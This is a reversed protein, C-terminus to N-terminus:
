VQELVEQNLYGRLSAAADSYWGFVSMECSLAATAVATTLHLYALEPGARMGGASKDTGMAPAQQQVTRGSSSGRQVWAGIGAGDTAIPEIFSSLRLGMLRVALAPIQKGHETHAVNVCDAHPVCYGVRRARGAVIVTYRALQGCRGAARAQRRQHVSLEATLMPLAAQVIAHQCASSCEETPTENEIGWPGGEQTQRSWLEFATTKLKLTLTRAAPMRPQKTALAKALSAALERIKAAMAESDAIPAFTRETSISKRGANGGKGRQPSTSGSSAADLGLGVRLLFGFQRASFARQLRARVDPLLLQGVTHVCLASSALIRETVKGIGGVKRCPLDRLFDLISARTPAIVCQGDPKHVDSAIKAVFRVPAVGCSCTLGGSTTKVDNRLQRAVEAPSEGSTACYRTIDLVAEDLSGMTFHPDLRAFLPRLQHSARKYLEFHTPVFRIQVNQRKCLEVAIFGPMASRVGYKRAEYSATCIMGIGGVAFPVGRLSPDVQEEVSAYFADMDVVLYTRGLDRGAELASANREITRALGAAAAAGGPPPVELRKAIAAIQADVRAAKKQENAFFASGKSLEYVTQAVLVKDMKQMGAKENIFTGGAIMGQQCDGGLAATAANTGPGPLQRQAALLVARHQKVCNDDQNASEMDTANDGADDHDHVDHDMGSGVTSDWSSQESDHSDAGGSSGGDTSVQPQRQLHTRSPHRGCPSRQGAATRPKFFTTIPQAAVAELGELGLALRACPLFM